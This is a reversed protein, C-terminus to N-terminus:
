AGLLRQLDVSADALRERRLSYYTLGGTETVTVLGAARLQVMHHSVTPKSLGMRDAIETLYLDGDALLRLIRLRSEDGLAKFLRVTATPLAAIDGDIAADALPYCIVRTIRDGFFYNYPRGFYCPAMILRRTGPDFVWRVGGTAKEVFEDIPLAALDAQRAAVDRQLMATIRPEVSAYRERWARLVRRLARLEGDPDALATELASRVSPAAAGAIAARADVDGAIAAALDEPAPAEDLECMHPVLDALGIRGAFAVVDASTHISPDAVVAGVLAHGLGLGAEGMGLLRRHDRRVGDSLSATADALWAADEPLIEAETELTLSVLFDLAPRAELTLPVPAPASGTASMDRVLARAPRQAMETSGARRTAM